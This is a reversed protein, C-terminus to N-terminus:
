QFKDFLAMTEFKQDLNSAARGWIWIPEFGKRFYYISGWKLRGSIMKLM